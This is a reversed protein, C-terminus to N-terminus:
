CGDAATAGDHRPIGGADDQRRRLEDRVKLAQRKGYGLATLPSVGLEILDRAVSAQFKTAGAPLHHGKWRFWGRQRDTAPDGAPWDESVAKAASKVATAGESGSRNRGGGFADYEVDNVTAKAKIRRRRRDLLARLEVLAKATRVDEEPDSGNAQAATAEQVQKAASRVEPPLDEGGLIDNPECLQHRCNQPYYTVVHGVPKPSQEIMLRRQGAEEKPGRLLRKVSSHPRFVRGTGQTFRVLSATPAAWVVRALEPVDYGETFLDVNFVYDIEGQALRKSTAEREEDESDAWLVAARNPRYRNNMLTAYAQAVKVSPCFVITAGRDEALSACVKHLPREQLLLSEVQEPDLDTGKLAVHSFDLGEVERRYFRLPVIWGDEAAQRPGYTYAVEIDGDCLNGLAVNDKRKPTATLILVRVRPNRRFHDLVRRYTASVARHGEDVILLTFDAPDFTALRNPRSLSQVTGFVVKNRMLKSESREDAMEVGVDDFGHAALRSIPQNILYDRHAVVLVRGPEAVALALYTETKGTGTAAVLAAGQHRAWTGRVAEVAERQYHRLDFM